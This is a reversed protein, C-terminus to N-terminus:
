GGEEQHTVYAEVLTEFADIVSQRKAATIHQFVDRVYADNSDHIDVCLKRGEESLQVWVIRRDQDDGWREVLGKGELGDVTRSLTSSDLRLHSALQGMTVWQQEDIYLLVLCQPLTVGCACLKFQSGALQQFKRLASRYKRIDSKDM